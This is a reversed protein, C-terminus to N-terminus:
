RFELLQLPKLKRPLTRVDRQAVRNDAKSSTSTQTNRSSSSYAQPRTTSERQKRRMAVQSLSSASSSSPNRRAGTPGYQLLHHADLQAGHSTINLTFDDSGAM